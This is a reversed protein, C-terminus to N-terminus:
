ETKVKSGRRCLCSWCKICCLSISLTILTSVTLLLLIVDLLHYQYWSLSLSSPKLFQAGQHRM